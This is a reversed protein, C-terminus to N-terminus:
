SAFLFFLQLYFFPYSFYYLSKEIKERMSFSFSFFNFVFGLVTM